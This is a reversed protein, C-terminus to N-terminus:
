TIRMFFNINQLANHADAVPDRIEDAVKDAKMRLRNIVSKAMRFGTFFDLVVVLAILSVLIELLLTM